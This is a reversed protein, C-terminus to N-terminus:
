GLKHKTHVSFNNNAIFQTIDLERKEYYPCDICASANKLRGDPALCEAYYRCDLKRKPPLDASHKSIGDWDFSDKQREKKCAPCLEPIGGSPHATIVKGCNYCAAERKLVIGERLHVPCVSRSSLKTIHNKICGCSFYYTIERTEVKSM